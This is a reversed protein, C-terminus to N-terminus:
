LRFQKRRGNLFLSGWLHKIIKLCFAMRDPSSKTDNLYLLLPPSPSGAPAASDDLQCLPLPSASHTHAPLRACNGHCLYGLCHPFQLLSCSPSPPVRASLPAIRIRGNRDGDGDSTGSGSPWLALTGDPACITPQYTSTPTISVQPHFHEDKCCGVNINVCQLEAVVIRNRCYLVWDYFVWTKLSYLCM